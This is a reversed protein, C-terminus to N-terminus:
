ATKTLNNPGLCYEQTTINTGSQRFCLKNSTTNSYIRWGGPFNITPNSNFGNEETTILGGSLNRATGANINSQSLWSPQTTAAVLVPAGSNIPVNLYNTVGVNAQFPISINSNTSTAGGALNTASTANGTVNGTINLTGSTPALTRVNTTTNIKNTLGTLTSANGDLSGNFNGVFLLPISNSSSLQKIQGQNNSVL